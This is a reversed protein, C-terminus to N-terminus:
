EPAALRYGAGYVNVIPDRRAGAARVKRRVNTIHTKIAADGTEREFSAVRDLLMARTFIQSPNRMLAELIAFETPTLTVARSAFTVARNRPDLQLPGHDLAPDREESARRGLARIRASLESLAFPKVLYDDAGADLASVKDDVTDRATLMLVMTEIKAGRLRRCIELGDLGPLMIDLLIVEYVNTQAYDWGANGDAAVDVVHQQRRLDGALPGSIGEDDEIILIRM